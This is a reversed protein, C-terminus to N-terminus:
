REGSSALGSEAPLRVQHLSVSGRGQPTQTEMLMGKEPQTQLGQGDIQPLIQPLLTGLSPRTCCWPTGLSMKTCCRPTGLSTRTSCTNKGGVKQGGAQVKEQPNSRILGAMTTIEKRAQQDKPM